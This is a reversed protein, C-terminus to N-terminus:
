KNEQNRKQEIVNELVEAVTELVKIRGYYKNNGEIMYWPAYTTSTKIIMDDIAEEYEDWKERNRWDEDTIKWQKEPHNMRDMFRREQEEKDIHLWFKLIVVGEHVLHEEMENLETYARNWESATCLGEIREVLVRGYWTRDYITLHGTKPITNWFRWLYHHEKEIDNPASIPVVRYGRPDLPETLRKIVGGKGAADWGEFALIVPIKEKYIMSQLRELRKQVEQLRKKYVDQQLALTLDLQHLVSTRIVSDYPRLFEEKQYSNKQQNKINCAEQIAGIVTSLVKSTAFDRQEAEIITWPAKESDTHEIMEEVLEIYEEYHKQCKKYEKTVKWATEESALLEDLRRKQEKKSIHLFLKIIITGDDVLQKEFDTIEKFSQKARKKTVEHDGREHLVKRYWSTDFVAIRGKAPVKTWFRWLFPHRQEEKTEKETAYVIFGRPDMSHILKNILYGKGSTGFGEFIIIIPLKKEKAERQLSSLQAELQEKMQKYEKKSITKGLDIGEIM